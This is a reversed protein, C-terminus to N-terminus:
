SKSGIPSKNNPTADAFANPDSSGVNADDGQQKEFAVMDYERDDRFKQLEQLFNMNYDDGFFDASLTNGEDDYYDEGTITRYEGSEREVEAEARQEEPHDPTTVIIQNESLGSAEAVMPLLCQPTTPYTLSVDLITVESAPLTSFDMTNRHFMTKSEAVTIVEFQELCRKIKDLAEKELPEALKIRFDFPRKSQEYYSTYTKM